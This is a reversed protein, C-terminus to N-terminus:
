KRERGILERGGEWLLRIWGREVPKSMHDHLLSDPEGADDDDAVPGGALRADELGEGADVQRRIAPRRSLRQFCERLKPLWGM